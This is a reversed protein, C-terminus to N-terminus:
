TMGVGFLDKLLFCQAEVHSSSLIPWMEQNIPDRNRALSFPLSTEAQTNNSVIADSFHMKSDSDVLPTTESEKYTREDLSKGHFALKM